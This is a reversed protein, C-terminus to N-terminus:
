AKVEQLGLEPNDAMWDSTEILLAAVQDVERQVAEKLEEVNVGAM